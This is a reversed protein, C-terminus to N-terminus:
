VLFVLGATVLPLTFLVWDNIIHAGASVWLNKTKLYALSLILRAVGIVAFCQIVNWGYTPLHMAAFTTATVLWAVTVAAGRSWRFSRVLISVIALLPLITVLEEGILQPISAAYASVREGATLAALTDGIPNTELEIFRGLVAAIGLTAVLNIAAFGFMAGVDRPRVRRFIATWGAPAAWALAILPIVPFLIAHAWNQFAASGPLPVAVLQVYSLACAAVVVLWKGTSIAVPSANYFPLDPKAAAVNKPASAAPATGM